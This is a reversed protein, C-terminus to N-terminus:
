VTAPAAARFEKNTAYNSRNLESPVFHPGPGQVPNCGCFFRNPDQGLVPALEEWMETTETSIFLPLKADYKRAEHALFRYLEARKEHPFPAHSKGTMTAQAERAAEVFTPDLQNVDFTKTLREYDMWILSTFGLTEPKAKRLLEEITGAYSEQWGRIPLVPKLKVRRRAAKVACALAASVRKGRRGGGATAVFAGEHMKGFRDTIKFNNGDIQIAGGWGYIPTQKSPAMKKLHTSNAILAMVNDSKLFDGPKVDPSSAEVEKNAALDDLTPLNGLNITNYM